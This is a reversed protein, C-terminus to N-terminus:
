AGVGASNPSASCLSVGIHAPRGVDLDMVMGATGLDVTVWGTNAGSADYRDVRDEGLTAVWVDGDTTGAAATIAATSALISGLSTGDRTFRELTGEPLVPVWLTGDPAPAVDFGFPIWFGQTPPGGLGDVRAIFVSFGGGQMIVWHGGFPDVKVRYILGSYQTDTFLFTGAADYYHLYGDTVAIVGSELVDVDLADQQLEPTPFSGVQVGAASYRVVRRPNTATAVFGGDPTFAVATLDVGSGTPTSGVVAGTEDFHVVDPATGSAGVVNVLLHDTPGQASAAGALFLLGALAALLGPASRPAKHM